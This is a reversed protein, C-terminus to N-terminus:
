PKWDDGRRTWPNDGRAVPLAIRATCETCTRDGVSLKVAVEAWGCGADDRASRRGREGRFVMRDGPFVSDRMRFKM